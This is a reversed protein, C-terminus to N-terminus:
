ASEGKVRRREHILADRVAELRESLRGDVKARGVEAVCGLGDLTPDVVVPVRVGRYTIEPAGLADLIAAYADAGARLKAGNADDLSELAARAFATWLEPQRELADGVIAEAVGCALELLPEEAEGFALQRAAALEVAGQVFRAKQEELDKREAELADRMASLEARAREMEVDIEARLEAELQELIVRTDPAPAAPPPPPTAAVPQPPPVVSVPKKPAEPAAPRAADVHAFALKRVPAPRADIWAPKAESREVVPFTFAKASV